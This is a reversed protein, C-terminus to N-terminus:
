PRAVCYPGRDALRVDPPRYRMKTGIIVLYTSRPMLSRSSSLGSGLPLESCCGRSALFWAIAWFLRILLMGVMMLSIVGAIGLNVTLMMAPMVVAVLGTGSIAQEMYSDNRAGFQQREYDARVFAKVLRVGALNEQIVTNLRDLRRQLEAYLPRSRRVVWALMGIVFPGLVLLILALRPSTVVAMILSSVILVVDQVQAVDNTLRIVLPGTGLQDLNGFSLSQVKRFLASRVDAGFGVSARVASVTCGIGGLAGVFALGIISLSTNLIVALDLQAIGVDVIRQLLYPQALDMVAELVM